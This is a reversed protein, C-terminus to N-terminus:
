EKSKSAVVMVDKGKISIVDEFANNHLVHSKFKVDTIEMVLRMENTEPDWEVRIVKGVQNYLTTMMM